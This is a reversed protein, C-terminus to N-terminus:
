TESDDTASGMRVIRYGSVRIVLFMGLLVLTYLWVAFLLESRRRMIGIATDAVNGSQREVLTIVVPHRLDRVDSEHCCKINRPIPWGVINPRNALM